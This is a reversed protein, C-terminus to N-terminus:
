PTLHPLEFYFTSGKGPQSNVGIRGDHDRVIARAMSLGIGHGRVNHENLNDVRVFQDFINAQDSKAIGIGHDRIGIWTSSKQHRILLEIEAQDPSYKIGNDIFIALVQELARLDLELKGSSIGEEDINSEPISQNGAYRKVEEVWEGVTWIEKEYKRKGSELSSFDLLTRILHQLRETEQDLIRVLPAMREPSNARGLKLTDTALRISALPTKIEHSVNAVFETKLRSLKLLRRSSLFILCLLLLLLIFLAVVFLYNRRYISTAVDAASEGRFGVAISFGQLMPNLQDLSRRHEFDLDSFAVSNYILRDGQDSYFGFKLHKRSLGDRDKGDQWFQDQFFNRLFVNEFRWRNLQTFLIFRLQNDQFVPTGLLIDIGFARQFRFILPRSANGLFLLNPDTGAPIQAELASQLEEILNTQQRWSGSGTSEALYPSPKKYEYAQWSKGQWEMLIWAEQIPHAATIRHFEPRIAKVNLSDTGALLTYFEATAEAYEAQFTSELEEAAGKAVEELSNHLGSELQVELSPLASLQWIFIGVVVSIALFGLILINRRTKM